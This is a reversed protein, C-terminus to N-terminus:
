KSQQRHSPVCQRQLFKYGYSYRLLTKRRPGHPLALGTAAAGPRRSRQWRLDFTRFGGDVKEAPSGNHHKTEQKKLIHKICVSCCYPKRDGPPVASIRRRKKGSNEHLHHRLAYIKHRADRQDQCRREPSFGITKFFIVVVAPTKEHLSLM